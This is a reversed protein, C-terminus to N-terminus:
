IISVNRKPKEERAWVDSSFKLDTGYDCDSTWDNENYYMNRNSHILIQNKNIASKLTINKTM